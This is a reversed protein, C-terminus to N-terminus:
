ILTWNYKTTIHWNKCIKCKYVTGIGGFLKNYEAAMTLAKKRTQYCIKESKCEKM